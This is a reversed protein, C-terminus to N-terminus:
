NINLINDFIENGSITLTPSIVGQEIWNSNQVNTNLNSILLDNQLPDLEGTDLDIEFDSSPLKTVFSFCQGAYTLSFYIGVNSSYDLLDVVDSNINQRLLESINYRFTFAYTDTNTINVSIITNDQIAYYLFDDIPMMDIVPTTILLQQNSLNLHLETIKSGESGTLSSYPILTIYCKSPDIMNQLMGDFRVYFGLDDPQQSDLCEVFFPSASQAISGAPLYQTNYDLTVFDNINFHQYVLDQDNYLGVISRAFNLNEPDYIKNTGALLTPQATFYWNYDLGNSLPDSCTYNFDISHAYNNQSNNVCIRLRSCLQQILASDSKNTVCEQIFNSNDIYFSYIVLYRHYKQLCTIIFNQTVNTISLVDTITKSQLDDLDDVIINCLNDDLEEYYAGNWYCPIVGISEINSGQQIIFTININSSNIPIAYQNGLESEESGITKYMDPIVLNDCRSLEDNLGTSLEQTDSVTRLYSTEFRRYAASNNISLISIADDIAPIEEQVVVSIDVDTSPMTFTYSSSTGTLSTQGYRSITWSNIIYGSAPVFTVTISTGSLVYSQAVNLNIGCNSNLTKSIKYKTQYATQNLASISVNSEPMTFSLTDIYDNVIQGGYLINSGLDIQWDQMRYTVQRYPRTTYEKTVPLIQATVSKGNYISLTNNTKTLTSTVGDVTLKLKTNPDVGEGEDISFSTIYDQSATATITVNVASSPMTFSATGGTPSITVNVAVSKGALTEATVKPNIYGSALTFTFVINTGSSVYSGSAHNTTSITVGSMPFLTVQYQTLTTISGSDIDLNAAPGTITCPITYETNTGTSNNTVSIKSITGITKVGNNTVTNTGSTFKLSDNYHFTYSSSKFTTNNCYLAIKSTPDWSQSLTYNIYTVDPTLKVSTDPMIFTGSTTNIYSLQQAGYDERTYGSLKYGLGVSGSYTVTGDPIVWNTNDSGVAKFYASPDSISPPFIYVSYKTTTTVSTVSVVTAKTIIFTTSDENFATGNLQKQAAIYTVKKNPNTTIVDSGQITVTVSQNIPINISPPTSAGILTTSTNGYTVVCKFKDPNSSVSFTLPYHTVVVNKGLSSYKVLQNNAYNGAVTCNLEIAKTKTCGQNAIVTATSGGVTKAEQQNAIANTGTAM